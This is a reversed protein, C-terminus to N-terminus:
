RNEGLKEQNEVAGDAGGPGVGGGGRGGGLQGKEMTEPM